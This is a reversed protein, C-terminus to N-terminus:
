KRIANVLTDVKTDIHTRLNVIENKVGDTNRSGSDIVQSLLNNMTSFIQLDKERNQRIEKNLADYRLFFFAAVGFAMLLLGVLLQTMPGGSQGVTEVAKIGETIQLLMTVFTYFFDPNAVFGSRM